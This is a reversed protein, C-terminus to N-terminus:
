QVGNGFSAVGEMRELCQERGRSNQVLLSKLGAVDTGLKRKKAVLGRAGASALCSGLVRKRGAEVKPFAPIPQWLLDQEDSTLVLKAIIADSLSM